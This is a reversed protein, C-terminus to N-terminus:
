SKVKTLERKFRRAIFVKIAGYLLLGVIFILGVAFEESDGSSSALYPIIAEKIIALIILITLFLYIYQNIIIPKIAWTKSRVISISCIFHYILYIAIAVMLILVIFFENESIMPSGSDNRWFLFIECLSGIFGAVFHALSSVVMAILVVLSAFLHIALLIVAEITLYIGIKKM